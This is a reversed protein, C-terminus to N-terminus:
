AANPQVKPAKLKGRTIVEIQYQRGEPVTDGWNTVAQREVGLARALAAKSGFFKVADKTKM